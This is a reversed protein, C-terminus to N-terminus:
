SLKEVSYHGTTLELVTQFIVDDYPEVALRADVRFKIAQKKEEDFESISVVVDRLRPEFSQITEELIQGLARQQDATVVDFASLDPLGFAFISRHLGPPGDATQRTNLLEEVDRRIVDLMQQLGYGPRWATGSSEPDILRDLVSPKLGQESKMRAM